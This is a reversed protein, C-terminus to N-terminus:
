NVAVISGDQRRKTQRWLRSECRQRRRTFFAASRLSTADRQRHPLPRYNGNGSKISETWDYLWDVGGWDALTRSSFTLLCSTPPTLHDFGLISKPLAQNMIILDITTMTFCFITFLDTAILHITFLFFWKSILFYSWILHLIM